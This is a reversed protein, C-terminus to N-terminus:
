PGLTGIPVVHVGDKRRYALGTGTVVALVGPEGCVSTDVKKTFALLNEAADDIRGSGLKVEFAGWRGDECVVIADVELGKNDRYHLVRGGLPQSLVRLDRIVMSEFLLGMSELDALLREPSARLAAVALSPDVFHRRPSSRLQVRSRLAPSWAPQDEIVMLRDLAALYASASDRDLTGGSDAADAALTTIAVETATNRALSRLLAGVKVPDRRKGSVVPVDVHSVQTLYDRLSQLATPADDDLLGPWGGKAILQALGVVSLGSDQANQTAGDLLRDLSVAATSSGAEALCMPRMRMVGIRGAGSHRAAEDNPTASGTLIFQGRAARDDVARRVHAWIDPVLQWEDILLPAPQDLVLDPTVEAAARQQADVDLRVESAAQTRATATKGCAKPGEILVAGTSKLRSSLESDAIRPRYEMTTGGEAGCTGGAGNRLDYEM